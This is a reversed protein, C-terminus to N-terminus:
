VIKEWRAEEKIVEHGIRSTFRYLQEDIRNTVSDEIIFDRGDKVVQDQTAFTSQLLEETGLEKLVPELAYQLALLHHKSGGLGLGYVVKDQLAKPPLVDLYAKLIGSYSGQFIPTFVLVGDSNLVQQNVAQITKDTYDATMLAEAPLMHVQIVQTQIKYEFLVQQAYAVLGNLRSSLSNAGVILTVKTMDKGREKTIAKVSKM